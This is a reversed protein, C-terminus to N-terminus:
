FEDEFLYRAIQFGLEEYCLWCIWVYHRINRDREIPSGIEDELEERFEEMDNAYKGYLALCDSNYILMGIMGSACGGNQLDQFFGLPNDYNTIHCAMDEIFEDTFEYRYLDLRKCTDKLMEAVFGETDPMDDFCGVSSWGFLSSYIDEASCDMLWDCITQDEDLWDSLSDGEERPCIANFLSLMLDENDKHNEIYEHFWSTVYEEFKNKMTM